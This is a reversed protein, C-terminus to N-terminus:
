RSKGSTLLAYIPVVILTVLVIGGVVAIPGWFPSTVYWWSWEIHGTLKLTVFILGLVSFFSWGSAAEKEM